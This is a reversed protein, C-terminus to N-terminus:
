LKLVKELRTVVAECEEGLDDDTIYRCGGLWSLRHILLHIIEHKAHSEPGTDNKPNNIINTLAVVAYKGTENIEVAAYNDGLREQRFEIRYQMLGLEKQLRLFETKFKEFYAKSVKKM